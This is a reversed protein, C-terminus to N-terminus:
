EVEDGIYGGILPYKPEHWRDNKRIVPIRVRNHDAHGEYHKVKCQVSTHIPPHVSGDVDYNVRVRYDCDRCIYDMFVQRVPPVGEVWIWEHGNGFEKNIEVHQCVSTWDPPNTYPRENATRFTNVIGTIAEIDCHICKYFGHKQPDFTVTSGDSMTFSKNTDIDYDNSKRYQGTIATSREKKENLSSYGESSVVIVDFPSIESAESIVNPMLTKIGVALAALIKKIKM